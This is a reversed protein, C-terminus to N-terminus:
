VALRRERIQRICFGNLTGRGKKRDGTRMETLAADANATLQKVVAQDIRRDQAIEDTLIEFVKLVIDDDTQRRVWRGVSPSALTDLCDIVFGGVTSLLTLAGDTRDLDYGRLQTRLLAQGAIAYQAAKLVSTGPPHWALARALAYAVLGVGGNVAFLVPVGVVAATHTWKWWYSYNRAPFTVLGAVGSLLGALIQVDSV